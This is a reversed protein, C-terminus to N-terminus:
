SEREVRAGAGIAEGAQAGWLGWGALLRRGGEALAIARGDFGTSGVQAEAPAAERELVAVAFGEGALVHALIAGVPGGGVIAVDFM